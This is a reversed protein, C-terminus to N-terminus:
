NAKKWALECRYWSGSDSTCSTMFNTYREREWSRSEWWQGAAFGWFLGMGLVLFLLWDARSQKQPPSPKEPLPTQVRRVPEM